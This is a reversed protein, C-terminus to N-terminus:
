PKSETKDPLLIGHLQRLTKHCEPCGLIIAKISEARETLSAYEPKNQMRRTADFINEICDFHVYGKHWQLGWLKRDPGVAVVGYCLLCDHGETSTCKDAQLKNHSESM